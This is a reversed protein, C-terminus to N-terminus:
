PCKLLMQLKEHAKRIRNSLLQSKRGSQVSNNAHSSGCWQLLDRILQLNLATSHVLLTFIIKGMVGDNVIYSLLIVQYLRNHWIHVWVRVCLPCCHSWSAMQSFLRLPHHWMMTACWGCTAECDSLSELLSLLEVSQEVSTSHISVSAEM